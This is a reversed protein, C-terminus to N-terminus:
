FFLRSVTLRMSVSGSGFLEARQGGNTIAMDALVTERM